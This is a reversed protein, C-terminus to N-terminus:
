WAACTMSTEPSRLQASPHARGSEDDSDCRELCPTGLLWLRAKPDTIQTFTQRAQAINPVRLKWYAGPAHTPPQNEFVKVGSVEFCKRQSSKPSSGLYYSASSIWPRTTLPAMNLRKRSSKCHTNVTEIGYWRRNYSVDGAYQIRGGNGPVSTTSWIPTNEDPPPVPEERVARNPLFHPAAFEFLM